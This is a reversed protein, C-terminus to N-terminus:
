PEQHPEAGARTDHAGDFELQLLPRLRKGGGGVIHEAVQNVLVVDSALRTRILANVAQMEAAVLAQV